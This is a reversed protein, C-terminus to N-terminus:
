LSWQRRMPAVHVHVPVRVPWPLAQGFAMGTFATLRVGTLNQSIALNACLFHVHDDSFDVYRHHSYVRTDQGRFLNPLSYEYVLQSLNESQARRQEVLAPLGFALAVFYAVAANSYGRRAASRHGAALASM